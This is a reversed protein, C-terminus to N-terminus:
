TKSASAANMAYKVGTARQTALRVTAFGGEGLMDGLDYDDIGPADDEDEEEESEDCPPGPPPPPPPAEEPPSRPRKPSM